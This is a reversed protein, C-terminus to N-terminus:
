GISAAQRPTWYRLLVAEDAFVGPGAGAALAAQLLEAAPLSRERAGLLEPREFRFEDPDFVGAVADGSRTPLIGAARLQDLAEAVAVWTRGDHQAVARVAVPRLDQVIRDGYKRAQEIAMTRSLSAGASYAARLPTEIGTTVPQLMAPLDAPELRGAALEAGLLASNPPEVPRLVEDAEHQLVEARALQEGISAWVDTVKWRTLHELMNRIAALQRGTDRSIKRM